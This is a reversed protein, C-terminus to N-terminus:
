FMLLQLEIFPNTIQFIGKLTKVITAAKDNDQIINKILMKEKKSKLLLNLHQSNTKMAGLPQNIEHAISASLAGSIATKNAIILSNILTYKEKLLLKIKTNEIINKHKFCINERVM